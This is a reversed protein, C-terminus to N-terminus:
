QIRTGTLDYHLNNLWNAGGDSVGIKHDYFTVDMGHEEDWRVNFALILMLLDDIGYDFSIRLLEIQTWVENPAQLDPVFQLAQESEDRWSRYLEKNQNYYDFVARELAAKREFQHELFDRFISHEEEDPPNESNGPISINVTGFAEFQVQGKWDYMGFSLTGFVPDNITM